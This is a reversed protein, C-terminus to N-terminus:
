AGASPVKQKRDAQFVMKGAENWVGGGGLFKRKWWLESHNSM